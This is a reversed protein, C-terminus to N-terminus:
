YFLVFWVEKGDDEGPIVQLGRFIWHESKIMDFLKKYADPNPDIILTEGIKMNPPSTPATPNAQPIVPTTTAVPTQKLKEFTESFTNILERTKDENKNVWDVIAGKCSCNPNTFFTYVKDVVDEAVIGFKNRFNKDERIVRLLLATEDSTFPM